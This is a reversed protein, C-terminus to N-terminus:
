TVASREFLKTLDQREQPVAVINADWTANRVPISRGLVAADYALKDLIETVAGNTRHLEIVLLPRDATLTAMAGTLADAEAGEIDMKIVDPRPLGAEHRLSDLTRVDVTIQGSVKEPLKGVTSLM